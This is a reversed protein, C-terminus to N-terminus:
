CDALPRLRPYDIHLLKRLCKLQRLEVQLVAVQGAALNFSVHTQGPGREGEEWCNRETDGYRERKRQIKALANNNGSGISNFLSESQGLALSSIAISKTKPWFDLQVM